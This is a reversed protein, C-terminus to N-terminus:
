KEGTHGFGNSGRETQELEDVSEWEVVEYKSVVMQAIREGHEIEIAQNTFNGLIVGIEGTYDSDITGPSNMVTLGKKFSLGSRPRIQAEYEKPLQIHLGTPIIARSQPFLIIRHVTNVAEGNKDIVTKDTNIFSVVGKFEIKTGTLNARLDIGASGSTAYLPLDFESKNIISVKM